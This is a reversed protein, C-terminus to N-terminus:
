KFLKEADLVMVIREGLHTTGRLYEGGIEQSVGQLPAINAEELTAFERAGDVRLAIERRGVGVVMLRTKGDVPVSPFGLRRRLDVVPTVRGRISAVGEVYDPANPVPTIDGPLALHLVDDSSLAYTGGALTFLVHPRQVGSGTATGATDV